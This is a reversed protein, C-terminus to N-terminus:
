QGAAADDLNMKNGVPLKSLSRGSSEHSPEPWLAYGLM